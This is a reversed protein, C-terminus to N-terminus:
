QDGEKNLTKKRADKAAIVRPDRTAGVRGAEAWLEALKKVSDAGTLAEVWENVIEEPIAAVPTPENGRQQQADTRDGKKWLDLAAGFRMAANRLADGIVEKTANGGKKGDASGYGPRTMGAVTLRIWLGGDADFKPLGSEDTAMPEWSWFPDVDLLRGTLAAHGVYDLHVAKAHFGGCYVRDASVDSGKVCKGRNKDERSLVKPLQDVESPPFPARLAELATEFRVNDPLIGIDVTGM